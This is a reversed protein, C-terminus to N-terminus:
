GHEGNPATKHKIIMHELYEHSDSESEIEFTWLCVECNLKPISDKV